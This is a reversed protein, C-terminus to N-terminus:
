LGHAEAKIVGSGISAEGGSGDNRTVDGTQIM